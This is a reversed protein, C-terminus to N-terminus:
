PLAFCSHSWAPAARVTIDRIVPDGGYGATVDQARVPLGHLTLEASM